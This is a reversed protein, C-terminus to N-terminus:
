VEDGFYQLLIDSFQHTSLATKLLGDQIIKKARDLDIARQTLYFLEEQSYSGISNGHSAIVLPNEIMLNPKSFSQSNENTLIHKIHQHTESHTAEKNIVSNIQSVCTGGNLGLYHINSITQSALHEVEIFDDRTQKEMTQNVININVLSLNKKMWHKQNIKFKSNEKKQLFFLNSKEFHHFEIDQYLFQEKGQVLHTYDTDSHLFITLESYSSSFILNDHIFQIRSNIILHTKKEETSDHVELLYIKDPGAKLFDIKLHNDTYDYSFNFGKDSYAIKNKELVLFCFDKYTKKIETLYSVWNKEIDNHTLINSKFYKDPNM